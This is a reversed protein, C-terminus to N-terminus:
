ADSPSPTYPDGARILSVIERALATREEPALSPYGPAHTGAMGRRAAESRATLNVHFVQVIKGDELLLTEPELHFADTIGDHAVTIYTDLQM